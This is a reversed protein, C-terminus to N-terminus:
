ALLHCANASGVALQRSTFQRRTLMGEVREACCKLKQTELFTAKRTVLLTQGAEVEVKEHDM